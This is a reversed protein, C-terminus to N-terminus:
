LMNEVNLIHINPINTLDIMGIENLPGIDLVYNGCYLEELLSNASVDISSLENNACDLVKLQTNQSVDLETIETRYVTLSELNIFAEISTLDYIDPAGEGNITLSTVNEADATLIKGNIEGDSDIGQNLLEQEFGEDPISTTQASLCSCFLIIILFYVKKM